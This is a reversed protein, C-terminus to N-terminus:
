HHLDDTDEYRWNHFLIHLRYVHDVNWHWSDRSHLLMRGLLFNRLDVDHFPKGCRTHVNGFLADHLRSDVEGKELSPRLDHLATRLGDVLLDVVDGDTEGFTTSVTLYDFHEELPREVVRLLKLIM